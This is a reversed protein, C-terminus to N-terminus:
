TPGTVHRLFMDIGGHGVSCVLEAGLRWGRAGIGPQADAHMHAAAARCLALLRQRCHRGAAGHAAGRRVAAAYM